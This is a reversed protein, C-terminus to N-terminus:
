PTTDVWSLTKDLTNGAIATYTPAFEQAPTGSEKVTDDTANLDEPLPEQSTLGKGFGIFNEQSGRATAAGDATVRTVGGIPNRNVAGTGIAPGAIGSM